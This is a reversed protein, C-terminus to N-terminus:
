FSIVFFVIRFVMLIYEIVSKKKVISVIDGLIARVKGVEIVDDEDEDEEDDVEGDSELDDVMGCEVM